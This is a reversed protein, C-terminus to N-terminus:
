ISCGRNGAWLHFVPTASKLRCFGNKQYFAIADTNRHQTAVTCPRGTSLSWALTSQMLAHGIGRGAHSPAVAVIDLVNAAKSGSRFVSALVAGVVRGEAEAVFAHRDQSLEYNKLYEVWLMDAREKGILPDMHFRTLSFARGLDQFGPLNIVDEAKYIRLGDPIEPVAKRRDHIFTLETEIFEGGLIQFAALLAAPSHPPIKAWVAFHPFNEGAQRLGEADLPRDPIFCRDARLRYCPLGFFRFDWDLWEINLILGGPLELNLDIGPRHHLSGADVTLGSKNM